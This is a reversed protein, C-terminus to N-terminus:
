IFATIKLNRCILSDQFFYITMDEVFNLCCLKKKKKKILLFHKKLVLDSLEPTIAASFLKAM